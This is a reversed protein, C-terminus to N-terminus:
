RGAIVQELPESARGNVPKPHRIEQPIRLMDVNAAAHVTSPMSTLARFHGLVFLRIASSLNGNVRHTDIDGVLESLTQKHGRSIEKLSNWFEDEMSVSTKHGGVVISRKVIASLM